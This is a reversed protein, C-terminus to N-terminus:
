KSSCTRVYPNGYVSYLMILPNGDEASLTEHKMKWLVHVLPEGSQNDVIERFFQQGIMAAYPIRISAETGVFVSAGLNNMLDLFTNHNEGIFAAGRCSNLFVAPHDKLFGSSNKKSAARIQELDLTQGTLDFIPKLANSTHGYYYIIDLPFSSKGRFVDLFTNEDPVWNIQAKGKRKLEELAQAQAEVEPRWEEATQRDGPRGIDMVAALRVYGAECLEPKGYVAGSEMFEIQYRYDWFNKVDVSDINEDDESFNPDDYLLGIPLLLRNPFKVNSPDVVNEIQARLTKQPHDMAFLKIEELKARLEPDDFLEDYLRHGLKAFRWLLRKRAWHAVKPGDLEEGDQHFVSDKLDENLTERIEQLLNKLRVPTAKLNGKAPVSWHGIWNIRIGYRASDNNAPPSISIAIDDVKLPDYNSVSRMNIPREDTRSPISGQPITPTQEPARDQPIVVPRLPVNYFPLDKLRVQLWVTIGKLDSIIPVVQFSSVRTEGRGPSTIRVTGTQPELQQSFYTVELETGPKLAESPPLPIAGETLDTNDPTQNFQKDQLAFKLLYPVGKRLVPEASSLFDNSTSEANIQTFWSAFFLKDIPEAEPFNHGHFIASITYPVDSTRVTRTSPSIFQSAPSLGSMLTIQQQFSGSERRGPDTFIISAPGWWSSNSKLSAAGPIQRFAQQAKVPEGLNQYATALNLYANYNTPSIEIARQYANIADQNKGANWYATGLNLQAAAFSNDIRLATEFEKIAEDYRGTVSYINGLDFHADPVFPYISVVDKYLNVASEKRGLRWNAGALNYAAEPHEPEIKLARQYEEIEEQSKGVKGYAVGLNVHADAIDKIRILRKYTKIEDDYKKLSRYATGLSFYAQAMDPKIKIAMEYESIASEVANNGLRGFAVLYANGLGVYAEAFDHDTEIADKYAEIADQFRGSMAQCHGTLFYARANNVDEYIAQKFYPLAKECDGTSALALGTYYLGATTALWEPANNEAWKSFTKAGELSKRLEGVREIPVLFSIDKGDIMEVTVVGVAEGDSNILPSGSVAQSFPPATKTIKGFVPLSNIMLSSPSVVVKERSTDDVLFYEEGNKVPRNALRLYPMDDNLNSLGLMVLGTESDEGIVSEVPYVKDGSTKVEARFAGRLVERTTIVKGDASIFFGRGQGILKAEKDYCRITVTASKASEVRKSTPEQAITTLTLACFLTLLLCFLHFGSKNM